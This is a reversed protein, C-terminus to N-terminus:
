RFFRDKGGSVLSVLCFGALLVVCFFCYDFRPDGSCLYHGFDSFEFLCFFVIDFFFFFFLFRLFYAYGGGFWTFFKAKFMSVYVLLM